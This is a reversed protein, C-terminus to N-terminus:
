AGFVRKLKADDVLDRQKITGIEKKRYEETYFKYTCGPGPCYFYGEKGVVRMLKRLGDWCPVCFPGDGNSKKWYANDKFEMDGKENLKEELERMKEKLGRNNEELEAIERNVEILKRQLEINGLEKALGIADKINSIVGM